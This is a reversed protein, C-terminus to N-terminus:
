CPHQNDSRAINAVQIESRQQQTGQRLQDVQEFAVDKNLEKQLLALSSGELTCFVFDVERLPASGPIAASASPRCTASTMPGCQNRPVIYVVEM